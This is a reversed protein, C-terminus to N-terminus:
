PDFIIKVYIKIMITYLYKYWTPIFTIDSKLMHM